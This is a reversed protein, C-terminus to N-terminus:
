AASAERVDEALLERLRSITRKTREPAGQSAADLIGHDLVLLLDTGECALRLDEAVARDMLEAQVRHYLGLFDEVLKREKAGLRETPTSLVVPREASRTGRARKGEGARWKPSESGDTARYLVRAGAQRLRAETDADVAAAVIGGWVPLADVDATTPYLIDAPPEPMFRPNGFLPFNTASRALRAAIEARQPVAPDDIATAFAALTGGIWTTGNSRHSRLDPHATLAKPASRKFGLVVHAYEYAQVDGAQAAQHPAQENRDFGYVHIAKDAADASLNSRGIRIPATM